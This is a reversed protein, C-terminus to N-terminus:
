KFALWFFWNFLCATFSAGYPPLHGDVRFTATAKLKSLQSEVALTAFYIVAALFALFRVQAEM